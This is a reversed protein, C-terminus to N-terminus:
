GKGLEYFHKAYMSFETKPLVGEVSKQDSPSLWNKWCNDIEKELDFEAPEEQKQEARDIGENFGLMYAVRLNEDNPFAKRAAELCMNADAM